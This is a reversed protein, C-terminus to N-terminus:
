KQGNTTQWEYLSGKYRKDNIKKIIIDDDELYKITKDSLIGYPCRIPHIEKKIFTSIVYDYTFEYQETM